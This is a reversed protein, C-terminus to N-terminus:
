RKYSQPAYGGSGVAGAPAPRYDRSSARVAGTVSSLGTSPSPGQGMAAFAQEFTGTEANFGDYITRAATAIVAPRNDGGRAFIVMAIRRQDPLTVFAVDGTYGNLTGTKHEVRTGAPLLARIRNRGTVCRAMMDLLRDHSQPSLVQGDDILQLLRLMALPTSSDRVDRLDRRDSLLQAITRDVRIGRINHNRLWLDVTAPGGLMALLQDTAHNDSRTLMANMLTAASVGGVQDDMSRRGADVESLYTAAVAVKVTSAMPFPINGNVSVTQGTALDLAAIGYEGPNEAATLALQRQLAELPANPAQALAPQAAFLVSLWVFLAVRRM